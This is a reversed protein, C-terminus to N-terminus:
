TETVNVSNLANAVDLQLQQTAGRKEATPQLNNHRQPDFTM